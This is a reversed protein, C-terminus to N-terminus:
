MDQQHIAPMLISTHASSTTCSSWMKEGIVETVGGSRMSERAAGDRRDSSQSGEEQNSQHCLGGGTVTVVALALLLLLQVGQRDLQGDRRGRQPRHDPTGSLRQLVLGVVEEGALFRFGQM